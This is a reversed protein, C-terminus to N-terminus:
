VCTDSMLKYAGTYIGSVFEKVIDLPLWPDQEEDELDMLKRDEAVRQLMDFFTQFDTGLLEQVRLLHHLTEVTDVHIFQHTGYRWFRRKESSNELLLTCIWNIFRDMGDPSCMAQWLNLSCFGQLQAAYEFAQYHKSRQKCLSALSVLDELTIKGDHNRDLTWLVGLHCLDVPLTAGKAHYHLIEDLVLYKRNRKCLRKFEEEIFQYTTKGIVMADPAAM